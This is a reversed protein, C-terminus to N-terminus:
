GVHCLAWVISRQVHRDEMVTYM